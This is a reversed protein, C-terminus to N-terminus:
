IEIMAKVNGWLGLTGTFSFLAPVMTETTKDRTDIAASAIHKQTYGVIHVVKYFSHHSIM